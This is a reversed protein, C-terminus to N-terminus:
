PLVRASADGTANAGAPAAESGGRCVARVRPSQDRLVGPDGAVEIARRCAEAAAAPQGLGLLANTEILAARIRLVPVVASASNLPALLELAREYEAQELEAQAAAVSRALSQDSAAPALPVVVPDNRAPL